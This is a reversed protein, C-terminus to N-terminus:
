NKKVKVRRLGFAGLLGAGVLSLTLPEPVGTNGGPRTASFAFILDNYDWDSGHAVDKDEWGVYTVNTLGAIVAAAGAPLAGVGFDMYNTTVLAHFNGDVDPLNSSYTLNINKDKLIFDLVGARNGLNKTDGATSATCGATNHNCFIPILPPPTTIGMVDTHAADAFVYVATVPGGLAVLVSPPTTIPGAAASAAFAAAALVMMPYRM